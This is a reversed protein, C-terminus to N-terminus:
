VAIFPFCCKLLQLVKHTFISKAGIFERCFPKLYTQTLYDVLYRIERGIIGTHNSFPVLDNSKPRMVCHQMFIAQFRHPIFVFYKDTHFSDVLYWIERDILGGGGSLGM